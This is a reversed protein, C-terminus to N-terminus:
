YGGGHWATAEPPTLVGHIAFPSGRDDFAHPKRVTRASTHHATKKVSQHETGRAALLAAPASPIQAHDPLTDPQEVASANINVPSAPIVALGDVPSPLAVAPTDAPASKDPPTSRLMVALSTLAVGGPLAM